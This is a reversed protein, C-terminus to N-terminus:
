DAKRLVEAVVFRKTKSLPRSGNLRVFDGVNLSGSEDHASYRKTVKKRKLYVADTALREAEVVVTKNMKTSVVVGKVDQVARVTVAGRRSCVAPRVGSFAPSRLMTSQM